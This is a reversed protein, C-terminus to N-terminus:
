IISPPKREEEDQERSKKWTIWLLRIGVILAALSLLMLTASIWGQKAHSAADMLGYGM